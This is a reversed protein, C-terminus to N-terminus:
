APEKPHVIPGHVVLAALRTGAKGAVAGAFRVGGAHLTLPAGVRHGLPVVDGASLALIRSPSLAIADFQLAVDLPLDGVRDRLRALAGAGPEEPAATGDRRRTANLRPLLAALPLSIRLPSREQGIVLEFEGVVVADAAGAAQVFQPNYEITGVTPELAVIPELAYRLVGVIQDLLGRLLSTEIDTLTRVPQRGGPGGLMHDVAALAIPLSFQVTGTGTLPSITLPVMLTPSELRGIYEDYSRQSVDSITVQCVQRLGSTLLTTLRRAFTEYAM